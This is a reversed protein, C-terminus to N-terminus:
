SLKKKATRALFKEEQIVFREHVGEGIKEREDFAEVTFLLRRGDVEDLRATARVTMGLPTAALHKVNVLIGVTTEGEGLHPQVLRLAAMEMLGIMMPTAFVDVGGSGVAAATNEPTVTTTVEGTLGPVLAM